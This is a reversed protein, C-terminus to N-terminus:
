WHKAIARPLLLRCAMNMCYRMRTYTGRWYKTPMYNYRLISRELARPVGGQHLGRDDFILLSGAPACVAYTESNATGTDLADISAKIEDFKSQTMQLLLYSVVEPIQLTNKLEPVFNTRCYTIKGAAIGERIITVLRHTERVYSFAGNSADIDNLYIFFKLTYYDPPHFGEAPSNADTHWPTIPDECRPSEISMIHDFHVDQAYYNRSFERFGCQQSVNSLYVLDSRVAPRLCKRLAYSPSTLLWKRAPKRHEMASTRLRLATEQIACIQQPSFFRKKLVIGDVRLTALDEDTLTAYATSM